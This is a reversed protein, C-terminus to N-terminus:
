DLFPFNQLRLITNVSELSQELAQKLAELDFDGDSQIRLMLVTLQDPLRNRAQTLQAQSHQTEQHLAETEEIAKSFDHQM